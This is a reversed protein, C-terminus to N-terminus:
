RPAGCEFDDEGKPWCYSPWGRQRWYDVLGLKEILAKYRPDTKMKNMFPYGFQTMGSNAFALAAGGAVSSNMAEFLGDEGLLAYLTAPWNFEYFSEPNGPRPRGEILHSLAAIWPERDPMVCDPCQNVLALATEYNGELVRIEAKILYAYSFTPDLVLVRDIIEEAKALENASMYSYAPAMQFVPRFPELRAAQLGYDISKDWLGVADLFENYDEMVSASQPDIALAKLYEDEAEIWRRHRRHVSGMAQHALAVTTDLALARIAAEEALDHFSAPDPREGEFEAVYTPLVQYTIALAAWAPGFEPDLELSHRLNVVADALGPGRQKLEGFGKLYLDYAAMDRTRSTVLAGAELGLPAKLADAIAFAIEEQIAFVNELRRDYTESWLHFGDSVRILQATIRLDDGAKRVSGEVISTVGLERGIERVDKSQGKYSFVSTRAAVMLGPVKALTNLLEETIGDSFYEQETDSSMNIFPLVALSVESSEVAPATTEATMAPTPPDDAFRDYVLFVVALALAAIIVRDLKRGTSHTISISKDIEETKKVGEPTVEYAWSFLLVVPLGVLVVVIFFTPVWEPMGLRPAITDIAEIILWGVVAYAIAVRVVNRRKLESFLNGM